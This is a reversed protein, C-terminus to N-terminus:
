DEEGQEAKLVDLRREILALFATHTLCRDLV